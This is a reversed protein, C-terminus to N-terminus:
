RESAANHASANRNYFADEPICAQTEKRIPQNADVHPQKTVPEKSHTINRIFRFLRLSCNKKEYTELARLCEFEHRPTDSARPQLPRLPSNKTWQRRAGCGGGGQWTM